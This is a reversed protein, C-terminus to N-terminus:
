QWTDEGETKPLVDRISEAVQSVVDVSAERTSTPLSLTLPISPGWDGLPQITAIEVEGSLTQVLRAETDSVVTSFLKTGGLTAVVARKVSLYRVAFGGSDEAAIYGTNVIVPKLSDCEAPQLGVAEVMKEFKKAAWTGLGSQSAFPIANVASEIGDSIADQGEGYAYLFANWCRLVVSLVGPQSGSQDEIGELVQTIVSNQDDSADALLTAGSVAARTGLTSDTQVFSTEFGESSSSQSLDVVLAIAGYAGAPKVDIRNDKVADIAEAIVDFLSSAEEKVESAIPDLEDRAEQYDEAAEAVIRYHYEFGNQISSSAACVSGLLGATFECADCTAYDGEEMDRVSGLGVCGSANPCASCSHLMPTGDDTYTVPYVAETYLTTSRMEATNKPLLPFYASFTEGTDNVYGESLRDCAYRYVNKRLASRGQERVTNSEARESRYREQYYARARELAVSFSWADVSTYLPNDAGHLGALSVAREYMCYGPNSGCDANFAREKAENAKAAAEEAENADAQLDDAEKDVTEQAEKVEDDEDIALSEGTGPVLVALALYNADGATDNNKRAVNWASAAALFPLTEQYANLTKTAGRAFTTRAEAIETGAELLTPAVGATVPTCLAAVGLGTAALSTLSMTLLLADCVRVAVVFQGVQNEAALAAADAVDQIASSVTSLRYVQACTFLLSLSVLLAVVMGLTTYGLEGEEDVVFFLRYALPRKAGSPSM